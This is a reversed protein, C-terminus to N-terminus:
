QVRPKLRVGFKKDMEGRRTSEKANTPATEVDQTEGFGQRLTLRHDRKNGNREEGSRFTAVPGSGHSVRAAPRDCVGRHEDVRGPGLKPGTGVARGAIDVAALPGQGVGLPLEANRVEIRAKFEPDDQKAVAIEGLENPADIREYRGLPQHEGCTTRRRVVLLPNHAPLHDVRCTLGHGVGQKVDLAEFPAPHGLEAPDRTLRNRDAIRLALETKKPSFVPLRYRKM